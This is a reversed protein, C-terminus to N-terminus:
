EMGGIRDIPWYRFFAHGTVNELPVDGFWRSDLSNVRNDGMVWICGEAVTHPYTIGSDLDESPRGLTYPEDLKVGDVYVAGDILDVTQGATAICRKILVSGDGEVDDFTVIQGPEPSGTYYSVRESLVRDGELITQTMSQSPIQYPTVVFNTIGFAIAMIVAFMVVIEILSRLAGGQNKKEEM